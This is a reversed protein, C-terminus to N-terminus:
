LAWAILFGLISIIVGLHLFTNSSVLWGLGPFFQFIWNIFILLLGLLPLLGKRMALYNSLKDITSNVTDKV